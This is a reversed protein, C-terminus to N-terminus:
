RVNMFLQLANFISKHNKYDNFKNALVSFPPRRCGDNDDNNNNTDKMGDTCSKQISCGGMPCIDRVINNRPRKTIQRIDVEM